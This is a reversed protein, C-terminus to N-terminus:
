SFLKFILKAIIKDQFSIVELKLLAGNTVDKYITYKQTFSLDYYYHCHGGLLRTLFAENIVATWESLCQPLYYFRAEFSQM